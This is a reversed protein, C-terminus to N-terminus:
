QLRSMIRYLATFAGVTGLVVGTVEADAPGVAEVAEALELARHAVVHQRGVGLRSLRKGTLVITEAAMADLFGLVPRGPLLNGGLVLAFGICLLAQRGMERCALFGLKRVAVFFLVLGWAAVTQNAVSIPSPPAPPNNSDPLLGGKRQLLAMGVSRSLSSM